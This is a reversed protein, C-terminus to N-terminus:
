ATRCTPEFWRRVERGDDDVVVFGDPPTVIHRLRMGEFEAQSSSVVDNLDTLISNVVEIPKDENGHELWKVSFMEHGKEWLYRGLAGSVIENKARSRPQLRSQDAL